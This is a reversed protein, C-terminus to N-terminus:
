SVGAKGRAFASALRNWLYPHWLRDRQLISEFLPHEAAYLDFRRRDTVAADEVNAIRDCLKLAIADFDAAIKKFYEDKAQSQERTVLWVLEAVREGFGAQLDERHVGCDEIVDHLWAAEHLPGPRDDKGCLWDALVQAVAGLHFIYPRDGYRQAAHVTRAFDYALIERPTV